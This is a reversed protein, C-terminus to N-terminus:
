AQSTTTPAQNQRIKPLMFGALILWIFSPFRTLPILFIAQPILLALSSLEGMVALILDFVVLWKPLAKLFAATISLGAILLGMPVSFGVGGFAFALYYLSPTVGTDQAIGPCTMVWLVLASSIIGFAAAFGGFLAIHTGAARVGLFHHSSLGNL